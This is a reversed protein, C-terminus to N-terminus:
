PQTVEGSKIGKLKIFDIGILAAASFVLIM